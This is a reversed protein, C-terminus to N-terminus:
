FLALTKSGGDMGEKKMERHRSFYGELTVYEIEDM